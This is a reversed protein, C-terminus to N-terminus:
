FKIVPVKQHEEYYKFCEKLHFLFNMDDRFKNEYDVKMEADGNQFEARHKDYNRVLEPVFEYSINPSTNIQDVDVNM